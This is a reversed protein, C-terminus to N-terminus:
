KAAGSSLRDLMAIIAKMQPASKKAYGADDYGWWDWCGNTAGKGTQPYLVVINNSDAWRNYGANKAFADGVDGANQKCGHLAVHVRCSQGSACSKPVFAYGSTGMGHAAEFPAQEFEVLAGDLAGSKKANLAGYLHQLLAGSLDFGCNNIFPAAVNDCAATGEDTVFGHAAPIDKKVAINAAPLFAAYYKSLADSTSPQVVADKSGSFLYVKSNSMASTADIANEGAWKKTTEVLGEVPIAGKGFCRTLANVVSSEACNFPGGAIAAVGKAFRSSYAVHLQVAMYGGSSIGSVTTQSKDINLQPLPAAVTSLAASAVMAALLSKQFSM